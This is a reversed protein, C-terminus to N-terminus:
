GTVSVNRGKDNPICRSKMYDAALQIAIFKWDIEKDSQQVKVKRRSIKKM